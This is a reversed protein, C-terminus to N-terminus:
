SNAELVAKEAATLGAYTYPFRPDGDRGTGDLGLLECEDFSLEGCETDPGCGSHDDNAHDEAVRAAMWEPSGLPFDSVNM